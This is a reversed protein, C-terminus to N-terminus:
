RGTPRPSCGAWRRGARELGTVASHDHIRAGRGPAVRALERTYSLPQVSGAAACFLEFVEHPTNVVLEILRRGREAGFRRLLASPGENLGPNVQGGSRGSAGFGVSAAELVTASVGRVVLELAASTGTLGGGVIAVDCSSSGQLPSTEPAAAATAMWSADRSGDIPFRATTM